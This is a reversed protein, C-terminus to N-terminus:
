VGSADRLDAMLVEAVREEHVAVGRSAIAEALEADWPVPTVRGPPPGGDARDLAALYDGTGMRWPLAGTRAMVHAAIRLGEGDFDGHYRLVTGVGRGGGGDASPERDGHGGEALRRLLTVAASGPWGSVCVLPPCAAGLRRQALALISPNEVVHVVPAPQVLEEAASLQDLTVPTARGANAWVRLATALPGDGEPRLGLVLVSTSHADCDVGFAGWLARRDQANAPAPADRLVALARLVLGPLAKTGDLAHPDGTTDAALAPLPRGDALPLAALIDLAHELRRRLAATGARPVGDARLQDVWRLLAPQDAIVAHGALWSWLRERDDAALVRAGARDDIPGVVAEVVTRADLDMPALAADLRDLRVTARSGPYAALGLLDALAERAAEDLDRVTVSRVATGSSLRHHVERWLPLLAEEGLHAPVETGSM